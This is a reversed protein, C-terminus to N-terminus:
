ESKSALLCCSGWRKIKTHKVKLFRNSCEFNVLNNIISHIEIIMRFAELYAKAFIMHFLILFDWFRLVSGISRTSNLEDDRQIKKVM